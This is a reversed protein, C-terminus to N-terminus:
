LTTGILNFLAKEVTCDCEISESLMHTNLAFTKLGAKPEVPQGITLVPIWVEDPVVLGDDDKGDWNVVHKGANYTKHKVLQRVLDGDSSYITLTVQSDRM